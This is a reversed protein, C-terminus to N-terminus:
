KKVRKNLPAPLGSSQLLDVLPGRIQGFRRANRLLCSVTRHSLQGRPSGLLITAAALVVDLPSSPDRIALAARRVIARENFRALVKAAPVPIHRDIDVESDLIVRALDLVASRPMTTGARM